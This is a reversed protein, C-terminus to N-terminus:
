EAPAPEPAADADDGAPGDDPRAAGTGLLMSRLLRLDMTMVGPTNALREPALDAAPIPDQAMSLRIVGTADKLPRIEVGSVGADQQYFIRVEASPTTEGEDKLRALLEYRGGGLDNVTAQQDHGDLLARLQDLEARGATGRLLGSGLREIAEDHPGPGAHASASGQISIRVGPESPGAPDARTVSGHISLGNRPADDDAAEDHEGVHVSMARGLQNISEEDVPGINLLLGTRAPALFGAAQPFDAAMRDITGADGRVFLWGAEPTFAAELTLDMGPMAQADPSGTMRLAAHVGGFGANDWVAEDDIRSLAIPRATRVRITGDVIMGESSVRDLQIDMGLVQAQRLSALIEAAHVKSSSHQTWLMASVALGAALASTAALWRPRAFRRRTPRGERPQHAEHRVAATAPAPEGPISVHQALLRLNADIHADDRDAPTNPTTHDNM